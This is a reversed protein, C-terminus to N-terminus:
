QNALQQACSACFPTEPIVELRGEEITVGCNTCIGYQGEKIRQMAFDIRFIDKPSHSLAQQGGEKLIQLKSKRRAELRRKM